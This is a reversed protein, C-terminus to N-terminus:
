LAIRLPYEKSLDFPTTWLDAAAQATEGSRREFSIDGAGAEQWADEENGCIRTSLIEHRTILDGLAVELAGEDLLGEIRLCVPVVYATGAM